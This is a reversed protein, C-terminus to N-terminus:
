HLFMAQQGLGGWFWILSSFPVYSVCEVAVHPNRTRQHGYITGSQIMARRSRCFGPGVLIGKLRSSEFVSRFGDALVDRSQM